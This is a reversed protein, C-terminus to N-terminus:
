PLTVEVGVLLGEEVKFHQEQSGLELCGNLEHRTNLTNSAVGNVYREDEVLEM